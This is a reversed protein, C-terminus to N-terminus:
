GIVELWSKAMFGLTGDRRIVGVLAQTCGGDEVILYTKGTGKHLVLDGATM